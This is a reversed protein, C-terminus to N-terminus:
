DPFMIAEFAIGRRMLEDEINRARKRAQEGLLARGDAGIELTLMSRINDHYRLISEDSLLDFSM